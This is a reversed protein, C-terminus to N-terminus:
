VMCASYPIGHRALDFLVPVSDSLQCMDFLQKIEDNTPKVDPSALIQSLAALHFSMM